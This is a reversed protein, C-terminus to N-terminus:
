PSTPEPAEKLERMVELIFDAPVGRARAALAWEVIHWSRTCSAHVRTSTDGHVVFMSPKTTYDHGFKPIELLTAM